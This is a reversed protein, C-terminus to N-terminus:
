PTCLGLECILPPACDANTLCDAGVGGGMAADSHPSGADSQPVGADGQPAGADCKPQGADGRPCQPDGDGDADGCDRHHDHDGCKSGPHKTPSLPEDHDGCCVDGSGGHGHHGGQHCPNDNGHNGEHDNCDADHSSSLKLVGLDITGPENAGLWETTGSSAPLVLHGVKEEESCTVWNAIVIRYSQGVPLALTFDREADLDTWFTRGDSGIAVARAADNVDLAQSVTGQVTLEGQGSSDGSSCGAIAGYVVVAVVCQVVTSRVVTSCQM